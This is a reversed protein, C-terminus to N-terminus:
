MKIQTVLLNSRTFAGTFASTVTPGGRESVSLIYEIEKELFSKPMRPDLVDATIQIKNLGSNEIIKLWDSALPHRNVAFGTNVGFSINNM